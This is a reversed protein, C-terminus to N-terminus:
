CVAWEVYRSPPLPGQYAPDNCRAVLGLLCLRWEVNWHLGEPLRPLVYPFPHNPSTLAGPHYNLLRTLDERDLWWIQQFGPDRLVPHKPMWERPSEPDRDPDIAAELELRIADDYHCNHDYFCLRAPDPIAAARARAYEPSRDSHDSSHMLPIAAVIACAIGPDYALDILLDHLQQRAPTDGALCADMLARADALQGVSLSTSM